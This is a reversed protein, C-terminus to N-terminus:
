LPFRAAKLTNIIEQDAKSPGIIIGKGKAQALRLGVQIGRRIFIARATELTRTFEEQYNTTTSIQGQDM